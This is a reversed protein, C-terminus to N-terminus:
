LIDGTEGSLMIRPTDVQSFAKDAAERTKYWDFRNTKKDKLYQVVYFQKDGPAMKQALGNRIAYGSVIQSSLKSDDTALNQIISERGTQGDDIIAAGLPTELTMQMAMAATQAQAPDKSNFKESKIDKIPTNVDHLVLIRMLDQYEKPNKLEILQGGEGLKNEPKKRAEELQQSM